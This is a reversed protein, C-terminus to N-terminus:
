SEVRDRGLHKAKYLARDARAFTQEITENPVYQAVGISVTLRGVDPFRAAGANASESDCDSRTRRRALWRRERCSRFLNRAAM